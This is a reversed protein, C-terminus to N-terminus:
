VPVAHNLKFEAGQREYAVGGAKKDAVREVLRVKRDRARETRLEYITALNFLLGPFAPGNRGTKSDGDVLSELLESARTANGNYLLAVAFNHTVLENAPYKEHLSSLTTVAAAYDAEAMHYLAELMEVEQETTGSSTSSLAHYCKRAAEVDGIRFYLLAKRTAMKAKEEEGAGESAAEGALTPLTSHELSQLHRLATESEGMEVLGSAVRLGIDYLRGGWMLRAEMDGTKAAITANYRCESGLTYLNMIGRRADNMLVIKLRELLLRLDWPIFAMADFRGGPSLSTPRPRPRREVSGARAGSTSSFPPNGSERAPIDSLVRAEKAALPSQNILVLCALRTHFLELIRPIEFPSIDAAPSGLIDGAKEAALRFHGNELLTQLPTDPAPQHTSHLFPPPIGTTPIPNYLGSRLLPSLDLRPRPTNPSPSRQRPHSSFSPTDYSRISAPSLLTAPDIEGGRISSVTSPGPSAPLDTRLAAPLPSRQRETPTPPAPPRIQGKTFIFMDLLASLFESM